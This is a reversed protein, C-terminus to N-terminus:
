FIRDIDEREALSFPVAYVTVNRRMKLGKAALTQENESPTVDYPGDYVPTAGIQTSLHGVIQQQHDTVLQGILRPQTYSFYGILKEPM